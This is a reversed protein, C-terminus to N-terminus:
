HQLHFLFVFHRHEGALKWLVQSDTLPSQSQQCVHFIVNGLKKKKLFMASNLCLNPFLEHVVKFIKFICAICPFAVQPILQM